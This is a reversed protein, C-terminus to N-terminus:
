TLKTTGPVAHKPKPLESDWTLNEPFLSLTSKETVFDWTVRKGTYAAMRGMVATLSSEATQRLEVIPKGERISDVLDKHEQQYAEGIKGDMKWIEKGDRDTIRSGNSFAGIYCIGKTGHIVSGNDVDSGPLQRCMFSLTKGGPYVYDLCMSDWMESDDPRTFRGGSGYVFEPPSGMVWNMADINHVAQEAIQDGSLWIFHMWNNLQYEADSMEPKRNRYWIGQSCYRSEAFVIDGITGKRIEEVAGVFNVQRRYQTGTVIATNQAKAKADAELCMRYGVPDVCSPKEAFVHKGADVAEKVHFPRFGPSTTLLVLDISKDDLIKKYGDLGDYMRDDAIDMAEPFKKQFAKQTAVCNRQYLDAAAVVKVNKNISLSDQLAGKGRGGCGIIGIRIELNEDARAVSSHVMSAAATATASTKIFGRRSQNNM